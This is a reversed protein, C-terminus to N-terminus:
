AATHRSARQRWPLATCPLSIISVAPKVSAVQQAALISDTIALSSLLWLSPLCQGCGEIVRRSGACQEHAGHRTNSQGVYRRVIAVMGLTTMLHRRISSTADM